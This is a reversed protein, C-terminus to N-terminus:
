SNTRHEHEKIHNIIISNFTEEQNYLFRIGIPLYYIPLQHFLSEFKLDQLRMFDKETTLIAPNETKYQGIKLLIDQVDEDTFFHHDPYKFHHNIAYQKEVFAVLPRPNAIGTLLFLSAHSLPTLKEALSNAPILNHYHITTFFCAQQPTLKLKTLFRNKEEVTLQRPTKTVIIMDAHQAAAPFERLHGGPLPYDDFFPQVFETLVLKLTPRFSLHQFGDDLIVVDTNPYQHVLKQFGEVRNGSLVLNVKPFKRFLQLPEDGINFATIQENNLKKPILFGKIKRKYGRSLISVQFHNQLLQVLYEVHPTKGVGGTKLNGVCITPLTADYVKLINKCYLWRRFAAVGGFLASCILFPCGKKM